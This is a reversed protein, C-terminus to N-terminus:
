GWVGRLAAPLERFATIQALGERDADIDGFGYAAYLFPIGAGRAAILDGRTDGLYVAEELGNRDMCTRISVDKSRGTDGFCVHDEILDETGSAHLFDEIYGKQCNSVIYLHCGEGRLEEMTERVLPYVDGGHNWMYAVEHDMIGEMAALRREPDLPALLLDAIETMTKGLVGEIEQDSFSGPMEPIADKRYDNWSERIVRVADWLTGDLDFLVGRKKRDTM